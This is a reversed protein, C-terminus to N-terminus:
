AEFPRRRDGGHVVDDGLLRLRGAAHGHVATDGLRQVVDDHLAQLLIGGLAVRVGDVDEVVQDGDVGLLELPLRVLAHAQAAVRAGVVLIWSSMQCSFIWAAM